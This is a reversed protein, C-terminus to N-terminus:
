RARDDRRCHGQGKEYPYFTPDIPGDSPAIATFMKPYTVAFYYTGIAGMSNGMLYLRAPDTNYEKEVIRIVNLVDQESLKNNKEQEGATQATREPRPGNLEPATADTRPPPAAEGISRPPGSPMPGAPELEDGVPRDARHSGRPGNAMGPHLYQSLAMPFTNGYSGGKYGEVAVILFGHKDAERELIGKLYAPERDFAADHNLNSGHLIVVLPMKKKGDWADPVYVRYPSDVGAEAFHYTREHDGKAQYLPDSGSQALTTGAALVMGAFVMSNRNM